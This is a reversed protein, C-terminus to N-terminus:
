RLGPATRRLGLVMRLNNGPDSLPWAEYVRGAGDGPRDAAVTVVAHEATEAEVQRLERERQRRQEWVAVVFNPM